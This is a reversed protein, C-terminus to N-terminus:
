PAPTVPRCWVIESGRADALSIGVGSSAMDRGSIVESTGGGAREIRYSCEVSPVRPRVRLDCVNGHERFALIAFSGDSPHVLQWIDWDGHWP